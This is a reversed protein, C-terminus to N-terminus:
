ERNNVLAPLRNFGAAPAKITVPVGSGALQRMQELISESLKGYIEIRMKSFDLFERAAEIHDAVLKMHYEMSDADPHVQVISEETGDESLYLTFHLVRPENEEVLHNVEEYARKYDGLKGAKVASTSIFIFPEIM